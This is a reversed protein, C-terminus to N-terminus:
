DVYNVPTMGIIGKAFSLVEDVENILIHQEARLRAISHAVDIRHQRKKNWESVTEDGRKCAEKKNKLKKTRM